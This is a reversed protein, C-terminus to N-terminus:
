TLVNHAERQYTRLDPHDLGNLGDFALRGRELHLRHDILLTLLSTSM